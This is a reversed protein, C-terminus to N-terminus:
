RILLCKITQINKNVLDNPSSTEIRYLYLGNPKSLEPNWEVQHKGQIQEQNVLTEIYQGFLNFIEIKVQTAGSLEYQLTNTQHFPNPYTTTKYPPPIHFYVNPAAFNYFNYWHKNHIQGFSLNM